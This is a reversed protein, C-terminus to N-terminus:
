AFAAGASTTKADGSCRSAETSPRWGRPPACGRSPPRRTTTPPGCGCSRPCGGCAGHAQGATLAADLSARAAAAKGNRALLDALLSLWYPMRAFSNQSRLTDIGRRALDIGDGDPRSWGDLVAGWERYYAFDYRDCLERLESAAEQLGPRDHRMQCTVAYALAMALNYPGGGARALAIATQSAALAEPGHGLLWHAHAAYATGHVDPRTGVSLAVAPNALKAALEFHRLGEAPKGLSVASAGVVFHAPGGLESDPGLLDLARIALPYSDALHGQVFQTTSLAVM